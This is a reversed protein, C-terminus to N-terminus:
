KVHARATAVEQRALHVANRLAHALAANGQDRRLAQWYENAADEFRGLAELAAALRWTRTQSTRSRRLAAAAEEGDSVLCLAALRLRVGVDGAGVETWGVAAAVVAAGCLEQPPPCLPTAPVAGAGVVAAVAAVVAVAADAM